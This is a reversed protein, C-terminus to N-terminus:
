KIIIKREKKTKTNTKLAKYLAGLGEILEEYYLDNTHKEKILGQKLLKNISPQALLVRLREMFHLFMKLSGLMSEADRKFANYHTNAKALMLAYNRLLENTFLYKDDNKIIANYKSERQKLANNVEHVYVEILQKSYEIKNETISNYLHILFKENFPHHLPNNSGLNSQLYSINRSSLDLFSKKIDDYKMPISKNGYRFYFERHKQYHFMHPKDDSNPISILFLNKNRYEILRMELNMITPEICEYVLSQISDYYNDDVKVGTVDVPKELEERIGFIILGGSSNAFSTIHKLIKIKESDNLGYLESKYDLYDSEGINYKFLDDINDETILELPLSFIPYKKYNM